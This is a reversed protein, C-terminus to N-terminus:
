HYFLKQWCLLGKCLNSTSNYLLIVYQIRGDSEDIIRQAALLAGYLTTDIGNTLTAVHRGLDKGRNDNIFFLIEGNGFGM